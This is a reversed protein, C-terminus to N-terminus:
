GRAGRLRKPKGATGGAPALGLTPLKTAAAAVSADVLHAYHRRTIRTDSHGLLTAIVELREGANALWSGYSRRLDRLTTPVIKAAKCAARMRRSTQMKSWANGQEDKFLFEDNEKGKAQASFFTAGEANLPVPRSKNNKGVPTWLRMSDFHAPTVRSLEGLRMGSLMAALAFPRFAEACHDLLKRAEDPTLMRQLAKDVNRFPKIRRWASDNNVRETNYSHNLMARVSNWIRNVSAQSARKRERVEDESADEPAPKVLSDRWAQLEARTLEAVRRDGFKKIFPQVRDHDAKYSADSRGAAARHKFYDESCEEVTYHLRIEAARHPEALAAELAERWSLRFQGDSPHVDDTEGLTRKSYARGNYRRVYWMAAGGGPPKRYGLAVGKGVSRWYPDHTAALKARATPTELKVSKPM